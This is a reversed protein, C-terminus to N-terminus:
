ISDQFVRPSVEERLIVGKRIGVNKFRRNQYMKVGGSVDSSGRLLSAGFAAHRSKGSDRM